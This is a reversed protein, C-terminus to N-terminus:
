WFGSKNGTFDDVVCELGRMEERDNVQWKEWCARRQLFDNSFLQVVSNNACWGLPWRPAPLIDSYRFIATSELPNKLIFPAQFRQSPHQLLFCQSTLKLQTERLTQLFRPSDCRFYLPFTLFDSFFFLCVQRWVLYDTLFLVRSPRTDLM